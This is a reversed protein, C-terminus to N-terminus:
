IVAQVIYRSHTIPLGKESKNVSFIETVEELNSKVTDDVLSQTQGFCRYNVVDLPTNLYEISQVEEIQYSSYGSKLLQRNLRDWVPTGEEKAFFGQFWEELEKGHADGPHLGIVRSGKKMIPTLQLYSSTPGKRNYACDFADRQFPLPEKTNGVVFTVNSLHHSKATQVFQITADIGVVGKAYRGCENAFQGDGCGLDLVKKHQIMELVEKEFISEGTPMAFTSVWPYTYVAQQKSLQEYWELSHPVLWERHAAPNTLAM